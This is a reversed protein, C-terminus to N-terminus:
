WNFNFLFIYNNELRFSKKLNIEKGGMPIINMAKCDFKYLWESQSLDRFSIFIFVEQNFQRKKIQRNELWMQVTHAYKNTMIRLATLEQRQYTYKCLLLFIGLFKTKEM